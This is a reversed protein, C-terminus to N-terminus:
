LDLEDTIDKEFEKIQRMKKNWKIFHYWQYGIYLLLVFFSILNLYYTIQSFTRLSISLPIGTIFFDFGWILYMLGAINVLIFFFRAIEMFEIISYFLDTLSVRKTHTKSPVRQYQNLQNKWKILFIFHVSSFITILFFIAAPILIDILRRILIWNNLIAVLVFSINVLNVGISYAPFIGSWLLYMQEKKIYNLSDQISTDTKEDDVIKRRM